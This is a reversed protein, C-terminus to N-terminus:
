GGGGGLMALCAVPDSQDINIVETKDATYTSKGFIENLRYKGM